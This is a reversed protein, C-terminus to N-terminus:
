DTEHDGEGQEHVPCGEGCRCAVNVQARRRDPTHQGTRMGAVREETVGSLAHAERWERLQVAEGPTLVHDEPRVSRGKAPWLVIGVYARYDCPHPCQFIGTRSNYAKTRGNGERAHLRGCKPCALELNLVHAYLRRWRPPLEPPTANAV